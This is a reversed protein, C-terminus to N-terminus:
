QRTPRRNRVLTARAEPLAAPVTALSAAAAILCYFCLRRHRSIQEATLYLSSAADLLTKAALLIPLWRRRNERGPGGVSTLVLTVAQNAMGLAADPMSGWRYAEGSADVRDSDFVNLPPDPLHRVLGVQYAVVAGLSAIGLLSLAATRRRHRIFGDHGNRFWQSLAEAALTSERGIDRGKMAGGNM